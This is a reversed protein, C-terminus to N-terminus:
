LNGLVKLFKMGSATLIGSITLSMLLERNQRQSILFLSIDKVISDLGSM